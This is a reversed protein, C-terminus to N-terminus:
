VCRLTTNAHIQLSIVAKGLNYNQQKRECWIRDRRSWNHFHGNAGCYSAILSKLLTSPPHNPSGTHPWDGWDRKRFVFAPMCDWKSWHRVMNSTSDNDLARWQLKNSFSICIIVHAMYVALPEVTWNELWSVAIYIPTQISVLVCSPHWWHGPIPANIISSVHPPKGYLHCSM